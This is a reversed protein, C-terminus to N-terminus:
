PDRRRGFFVWLYAATFALLLGIANAMLELDAASLLSETAM